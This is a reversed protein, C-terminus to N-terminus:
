VPLEVTEYVVGNVKDRIGTIITIWEDYKLGQWKKWEGEKQPISAFVEQVQKKAKQEDFVVKTLEGVELAAELAELSKIEDMSNYM